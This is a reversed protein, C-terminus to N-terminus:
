TVTNLGPQGVSYSYNQRSVRRDVEDAVADRIWTSVTKRDKEALRKVDAIMEPTFRVPVHTSKTARRRGPGAPVRNKPGAYYEFAEDDSSM